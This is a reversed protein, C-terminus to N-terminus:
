GTQAVEHRESVEREAELKLHANWEVQMMDTLPTYITQGRAYLMINEILIYMMWFAEYMNDAEFSIRTGPKVTPCIRFCTFVRQKGEHYYANVIPNGSGYGDIWKYSDSNDMFQYSYEDDFPTVDKITTFLQEYRQAFSKIASVDKSM